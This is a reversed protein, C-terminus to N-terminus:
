AREDLLEAADSKASSPPLALWDVVRVDICTVAAVRVTAASEASAGLDIDVTSVDAGGTAGSVLRTACSGGSILDPSVIIARLLTIASRGFAIGAWGARRVELDRLRFAPAPSADDCARASLM